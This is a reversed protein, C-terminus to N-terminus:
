DTATMMFADPQALGRRYGILSGQRTRDLWDVIPLEPTLAFAM